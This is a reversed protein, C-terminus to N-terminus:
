TRAAPRLVAPIPVGPAAVTHVASGLADGCVCNGAGSHVDRAYVHPVTMGATPGLPGNAGGPVADMMAAERACGTCRPWGMCRAKAGDPRPRLWGHGSNPNGLDPESDRM